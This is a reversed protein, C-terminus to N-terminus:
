LEKTITFHHGISGSTRRNIRTRNRRSRIRGVFLPMTGSPRVREEFVEAFKTQTHSEGSFFHAVTDFNKHILRDFAISTGFFGFSEEFFPDFITFIGFFSDFQGGLYTRNYLGIGIFAFNALTNGIEPFEENLFRLPDDATITCRIIDSESTEVM